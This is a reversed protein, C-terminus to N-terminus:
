VDGQLLTPCEETRMGANTHRNADCGGGSRLDQWKGVANLLSALNTAIILTNPHSTGLTAELQRYAVFSCSLLARKEAGKSGPNGKDDPELM